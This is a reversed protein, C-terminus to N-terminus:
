QAQSRHLWGLSDPLPVPGNADRLTLGSGTSFTGIRTAHVPLTIEPPAAFLLEYDDGATLAKMRDGEVPVDHIAIDLALNSAAAMRQADILLGDSVDMMAHVMPALAQGESVRPVPRRYKDVNAGTSRPSRRLEALGLGAMGIIGTVYLADGAQAGTRSPAIKSRGIATLSLVRPASHNSVTDGGLLATDFHALAGALGAVFAHDWDADGGLTYGMLVGIPKAGKAALDSLNVALLKWAVDEPPDNPLYHVGEVLMDHTIVFDGLVAADDVFGRAAPDTALPRLLAHFDAENM